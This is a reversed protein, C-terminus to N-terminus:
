IGVLMTASQTTGEMEVYCADRTIVVKKTAKDILRFMKHCDLYVVFTLERIKIAANDASLRGHQDSEGWFQYGMKADILM